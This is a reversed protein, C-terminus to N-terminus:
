QRFWLEETCVGLSHRRPTATAGPDALATWFGRTKKTNRAQAKKQANAHRRRWRAKVGFANLLTAWPLAPSGLRASGGGQSVYGLRGGCRAANRAAEGGSVRCSASNAPDSASGPHGKDRQREFRNGRAINHFVKPTSSNNSIRLKLVRSRPVSSVASSGDNSSDM